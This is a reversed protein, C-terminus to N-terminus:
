CRETMLWISLCHPHLLLETAPPPCTWPFTLGFGSLPSAVCEESMLGTAGPAWVGGRCLVSKRVFTPVQRISQPIKHTRKYVHVNLGQSEPITLFLQLSASSRQRFKEAALHFSFSVHSLGPAALRWDSRTEDKIGTKYFVSSFGVCSTALKWFIVWFFCFLSSFVPLPACTLNWSVCWSLSLPCVFAGLSWIVSVLSM